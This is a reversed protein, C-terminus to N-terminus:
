FSNKVWILFLRLYLFAFLLIFFLLIFFMLTHIFIFIYQRNLVIIIINQSTPNLIFTSNFYMNILIQSPPITSKLHELSGANFSLALALVKWWLTM